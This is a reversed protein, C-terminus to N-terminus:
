GPLKPFSTDASEGGDGAAVVGHVAVEAPLLLAPGEVGHDCAVGFAAGVGVGDGAHAVEVIGVNSVLEDRGEGADIGIAVGYAEDAIFIDDDVEVVAGVTDALDRADEGAGGAKGFVGYAGLAVVEGCGDFEVLGDGEVLEGFVKVVDAHGLVVLVEGEGDDDGGLRHIVEEGVEHGLGVEAVKADGFGFFVGVDSIEEVAADLFGEGAFIAGEDGRLLDRGIVEGRLHGGGADGVGDDFRYVVGGEVDDDDVEGVGVHDAVGTLELGGDAGDFGYVGLEAADVVLDAAYASGEEDGGVVAVCLHEDVWGGATGVGGVGGVGYGEDEDGVLLSDGDAVPTAEAVDAGGHEGEKVKGLGVVHSAM